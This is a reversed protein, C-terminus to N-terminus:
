PKYDPLIALYNRTTAPDKHRALNMTTAIDETQALTSLVFYHRLTQPTIQLKAHQLHQYEYPTLALRVWTNVVNAITWRSLPLVHQGARKDHRAFVPLSALTSHTQQQDLPNREHLYRALPDFCERPLTIHVNPMLQLRNDRLQQKRLNCIESSRMGTTSMFLILAKDRLRQLYQRDYHSPKPPSPYTIALNLVKRLAKHPIRPATHAKKRRLKAVIASVHELGTEHDATLHSFAHHFFALVIRSYLHETEVSRNTQLFHVFGLINDSTLLSIQTTPTIHHNASVYNIFLSLAQSKAALLSFSDHSASANLFETISENISSIPPQM